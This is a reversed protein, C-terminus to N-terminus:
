TSGLIGKIKQVKVWQKRKKKVNWKGKEEWLDKLAQALKRKMDDPFNDIRSYIEMVKNESTSLDSVAAIDREEPSM